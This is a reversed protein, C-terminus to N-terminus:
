GSIGAKDDIIGSVRRKGRRLIVVGGDLRDDPTIEYGSETVRENNVYAGGDGIARRADSKSSALGCAIFADVLSTPIAHSVGGAEDIAARLTSAPLGHLDARGFLAQAAREAEDAQNDGHVLATLEWALRRQGARAGPDAEHEAELAAIEDLGLFTLLRLYEGIKADEANMWFQYFAYPSTMDPDLWVAGGETKGFKTGDARTILPTVAANVRQGEIRRILEAGATINGWQDTAGLQLRCGYRRFLELYDMAQLLVYSFETYSIGSELRSAVVDRALMRNVPFHKGIDRLFDIIDLEATWDLNNVAQAANPGTFDLFRSAQNAISDVWGAVVDKSNMAREGAAKPDGILGTAGGVLLLPRHGALQLRRMTVLQLLHGIHLSAATPDFGIYYTIPGSEFDERLADVDTCQAILGRAQLEDIVTSM